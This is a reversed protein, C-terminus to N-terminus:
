QTVTNIPAAESHTSAARVRKMNYTLKEDQFYTESNCDQEGSQNAAESSSQENTQKSDSLRCKFSVDKNGRHGVQGRAYAQCDEKNSPSTIIALCHKIKFDALHDETAASPRKNFKGNSYASRPGM